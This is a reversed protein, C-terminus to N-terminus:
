HHSPNKTKKFGNNIVYSPNILTVIIKELPKWGRKQMRLTAQHAAEGWLAGLTPTFILDQISPQEAVAEITYEWLTSQFTSFIFSEVRSAGQSRLANYYLSGAWPHGIYNIAWNDKDWVPAQTWARHINSAADKMWDSEWQTVSKPLAILIGMGVLETGGILLEARLLKRGLTKDQNRLHSSQEKDDGRHLVSLQSQIHQSPIFAQLQDGALDDIRRLLSQIIKQAGFPVKEPSFCNIETDTLNMWLDPILIKLDSLKQSLIADESLDGLCVYHNESTLTSKNLELNV